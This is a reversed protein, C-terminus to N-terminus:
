LSSKCFSATSSHHPHGEMAMYEQKQCKKHLTIYHMVLLISFHQVLPLCELNTQHAGGWGLLHTEKGILCLILRWYTTTNLASPKAIAILIVTSPGNLRPCSHPQPHQREMSRQLHQLTFVRALLWHWPVLLVFVQPPVWLWWVGFRCKDSLKEM